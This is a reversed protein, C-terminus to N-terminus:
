LNSLFVGTYKAERSPDTLEIIFRSKRFSILSFLGMNSKFGISIAIDLFPGVKTTIKTFQFLLEALV